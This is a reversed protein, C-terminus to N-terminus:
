SLIQTELWVMEKLMPVSVTRSVNIEDNNSWRVCSTAHPLKIINSEFEM